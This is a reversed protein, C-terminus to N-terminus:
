INVTLFEENGTELILGSSTSLYRESAGLEAQINPFYGRNSATGTGYANIAYVTYESSETISSDTDEYYMATIGTNEVLTSYAEGQPSARTILYGTIPDSGVNDPGQWQLIITDNLPHLTAKLLTPSGPARNSLANTTNRDTPESRLLKPNQVQTERISYPINQQNTKDVDNKCVLLGYQTNYKDTILVADKQKIKRGCVDCMIYANGPGVKREYIM